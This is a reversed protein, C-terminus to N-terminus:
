FLKSTARKRHNLQRTPIRGPLSCQPRESNQPGRAANPAASGAPPNRQTGRAPARCPVPRLHPTTGVPSTPRTAPQSARTGPNPVMGSVPVHRADTGGMASRARFAPLPVSADGADVEAGQLVIRDAVASRLTGRDQGDVA